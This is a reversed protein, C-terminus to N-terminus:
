AELGDFQLSTRRLALYPSSLLLASLLGRCIGVWISCLKIVVPSQELIITHIIQLVAAGPKAALKVTTSRGDTSVAGATIACLTAPGVLSFLKVRRQCRTRLTRRTLYHRSQTPTSHHLTCGSQSRACLFVFPHPKATTSLPSKANLHLCAALAPSATAHIDGGQFYRTHCQHLHVLVVPCGLSGATLYDLLSAAQV